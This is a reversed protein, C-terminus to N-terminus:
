RERLGAGPSGSYLADSRTVFPVVDEYYKGLSATCGDFQELNTTECVPDTPLAREADGMVVYVGVAVEITRHEASRFHVMFVNM